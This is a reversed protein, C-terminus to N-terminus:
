WSLMLAMRGPAASFRDPSYTQLGSSAHSEVLIGVPSGSSLTVFARFLMASCCMDVGVEVFRRMGLLVGAVSEDDVEGKGFLKDGGVYTSVIQSITPLHGPSSFRIM